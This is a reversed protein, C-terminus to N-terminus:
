ELGARASGIPAGGGGGALCRAIRAPDWEGKTAGEYALALGRSVLLENLSPGDRAGGLRLTVLDRGYKDASEFAAWALFRTGALAHVLVARVCGAARVHAERGEISKLPKMEPADLHLLRAQAARRLLDAHVFGGFKTCARACLCVYASVRVVFLTAVRHRVCVFVGSIVGFLLLLARRVYLGVHVCHRACSHVCACCSGRVRTCPCAYVYVHMCFCCM